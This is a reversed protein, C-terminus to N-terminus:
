NILVPLIAKSGDELCVNLYYLGKKLNSIDLKYNYTSSFKRDSVVSGLHNLLKLSIFKKNTQILVDKKSPNPFLDIELISSQNQSFNIKELAKTRQSNSDLGWLLFVNQNEDLVMNGRAKPVLKRNALIKPENINDFSLVKFERKINGSFDQGGNLYISNGFNSYSMYALSDLNFNIETWNNLLPNYLWLDNFNSAKGQGLGLVAMGNLEVALMKSRGEAPFEVNTIWHDMKFDYVWTDRFYVSTDQGFGFIAQDGIKIAATGWRAKGPCPEMEEWNNTTCNFRWLDKHFNEDSSWGGFVYIYNEWVLSSSYQRKAFPVNDYKEWTNSNLDYSWWDGMVQFGVAYGLGCYIKGNNFEAIADDRAFGPFTSVSDLNQAQSCFSSILISFLSLYKYTM